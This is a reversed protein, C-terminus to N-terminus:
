SMYLLGSGELMSIHSLFFETFGFKIRLDQTALFVSDISLESRCFYKQM